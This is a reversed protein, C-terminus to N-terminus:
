LAILGIGLIVAGAVLVAAVVFQLIWAAFAGFWSLKFVEKYIFLLLLFGILPLKFVAGVIAAILNVMLVKFITAEGGLLKVAFYLPLASILIILVAGVFGLGLGGFGSLIDM